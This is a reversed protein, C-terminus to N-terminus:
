HTQKRLLLLLIDGGRDLMREVKFQEVKSLMQTIEEAIIWSRFFGRGARIRKINGTLLYGGECLWGPIRSVLKKLQRRNLYYLVEACVILDYKSDFDAKVIDTVSFRLSPYTRYKSSAREIASRSIDIGDVQECVNLLMKSFVGEGCGVDLGRGFKMNGILALMDCYRDGLRQTQVGYPDKTRYKIDFYKRIVVRCNTISSLGLLNVLKIAAEKFVNWLLKLDKM